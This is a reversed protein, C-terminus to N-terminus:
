FSGTRVSWFPSLVNDLASLRQLMERQIPDLERTPKEVKETKKKSAKAM